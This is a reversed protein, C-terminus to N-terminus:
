HRLEKFQLVRVTRRSVRYLDAFCRHQADLIKDAGKTELFFWDPLDPAYFFSDPWGSEHPVNRVAEPCLKDWIALKRPHANSWYKEVLSLYGTSEYLLIAALWEYFHYGGGHQSRCIMRDDKDFLM